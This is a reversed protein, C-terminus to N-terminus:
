RTRVKTEPQPKQRAEPKAVPNAAPQDAGNRDTRKEIKATAVIKLLESISKDDEADFFIHVKWYDDINPMTEIVEIGKWGDADKTTYEIWEAPEGFLPAKRTHKTLSDKDVRLHNYGPHGGVYIGISAASVGFVSVEQLTHVLFDPGRQTTYTWGEPVSVVMKFPSNLIDLVREGKRLDLAREGSRVSGIIDKALATCQDPTKHYEPNFYVGIRLISKDKHRFYAAAYLIADDKENPKTPIGATIDEGINAINFPTSEGESWEKLAKPVETKYDDGARRFTEWVMVVLKKEGEECVLRTEGESAASAAMINENRAQNRTGKPMSLTLRNNLANVTETEAAFAQIALLVLLPTLLKM